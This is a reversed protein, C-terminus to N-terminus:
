SYSDTRLRIFPILDPLESNPIGIPMGQIGNAM